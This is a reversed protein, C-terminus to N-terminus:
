REETSRGNRIRLYSVQKTVEMYVSCVNILRVRDENSLKDPDPVGDVKKLFEICELGYKDISKNSETADFGFIKKMSWSFLEIAEKSSRVRTDKIIFKYFSKCYRSSIDFLNYKKNFVM